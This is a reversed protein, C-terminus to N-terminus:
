RAMGSSNNLRRMLKTLRTESRSRSGSLVTRRRFPQLISRRNDHFFLYDTLFSHAGARIMFSFVRPVLFANVEDCCKSRPTKRTHARTCTHTHTQAHPDSAAPVPAPTHWQPHGLPPPLAYWQSPSSMILSTWKRSQSTSARPPRPSMPQCPM